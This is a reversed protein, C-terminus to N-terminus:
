RRRWIMRALWAIGAAALLHKLTHGSVGLAHFVPADAGEFAKAAAYLGLAIMWDAGNRRSAPFLGLLLPIAALPVFQVLLYPRLDGAGRLESLYWSAVSAVGVVVLPGLLLRGVHVGIRECLLAAFLAMFGVAMPLRDWVLTDNTPELHYWASGLGTAVVAWFLVRWPLREAPGDFSAARRRVIGLGLLGVVAFVANSLVDLANPVGLLTRTDAFRHYELPQPTRPVFSLIAFTVIAGAVLVLAVRARFGPIREQPPSPHAVLGGV